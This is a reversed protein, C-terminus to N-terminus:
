SGDENAACRPKRPNPPCPRQRYFDLPHELTVRDDAGFWRFTMIM